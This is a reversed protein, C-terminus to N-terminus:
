IRCNRESLCESNEGINAVAFYGAATLKETLFELKADASRFIGVHM